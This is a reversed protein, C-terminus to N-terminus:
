SGTLFTATHEPRFGATHEKWVSDDTGEASGASPRLLRPLASEWVDPGALAAAEPGPAAWVAAPAVAASAGGPIPSPPSTLM